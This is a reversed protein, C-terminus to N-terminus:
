IGVVATQHDPYSLINLLSRQNGMHTTRATTGAGMQVEFYMGWSGSSGVGELEQWRPGSLSM